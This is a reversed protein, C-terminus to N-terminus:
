DDPHWAALEAQVKKPLANRIIDYSVHIRARMEGADAGEFPMRVWSRHFYKAKRAVGVEILMQAAEVSACKVSVGDNAIGITAFMKDGVKWADLGGDHVSSFWAGPLASCIADVTDRTM